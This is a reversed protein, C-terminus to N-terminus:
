EFTADRSLNKKDIDFEESFWDIILIEIENKNFSNRNRRSKLYNERTMKIAVQGFTELNLEKGFELSFWSVAISIGLAMLGIKWSFFLVIISILFALFLPFILWNPPGLIELKFGLSNEIAHIKKRRNKPPLIETLQLDPVMSYRNIDLNIQFAARLKYFAQQFTCGGTNELQIKEVIFDCLEGYTQVRSLSEEFIKINLSKEVKRLFDEIDETDINNLEFYKM